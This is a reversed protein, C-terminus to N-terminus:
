VCGRSSFLIVLPMLVVGFVFWVLWMVVASSVPSRVASMRLACFSSMFRFLLCFSSFSIIM